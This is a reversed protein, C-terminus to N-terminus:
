LTFVTRVNFTDCCSVLVNLVVVTCECARKIGYHYLANSGICLDNGHLYETGETNAKDGCGALLGLAMVLALLLAIIKKM